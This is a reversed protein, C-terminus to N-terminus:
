FMAMGGNIHLTQGTIYSAADSALFAISSAVDSALGMRGAPIKALLDEKINDPLKDTMATEIFGPAVCNVTINRAAVELALSKSMAILAAKSASYNAQGINGTFAVISSVSIIRGFRRKIMSRILERSLIFAAKLNTNIVEDFAEDKMRMFLGDKTLGANNVLIDIKNESAANEANKALELVNNPESLNGCLVIKCRESLEKSLLTLTEENRGAILVEAGLSDLVKATEKGIGGTAGTILATKGTLDFM